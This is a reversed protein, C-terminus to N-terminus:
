KMMWESLFSQSSKAFNISISNLNPKVYGLHSEDNWVMIMFFAFGKTFAILTTWIRSTGWGVSHIQRRLLCSDIRHILKRRGSPFFYGGSVPFFVLWYHISDNLTYVWPVQLHQHWSSSRNCSVRLFQTKEIDDLYSSSDQRM